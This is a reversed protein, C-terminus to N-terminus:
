LANKDYGKIDTEIGVPNLGSVPGPVPCANYYGILGFVGLYSLGSIGM